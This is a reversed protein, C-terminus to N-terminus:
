GEEDPTLKAGRLGWDALRHSGEKKGEGRREVKAARDVKASRYTRAKRGRRVVAPQSGVTVARKLLTSYSEWSLGGLM